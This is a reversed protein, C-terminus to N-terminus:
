GCRAGSQRSRLVGKLGGPPQGNGLCLALRELRAAGRFGVHGVCLDGWRARKGVWSSFCVNLSRCSETMFSELRSQGAGMGDICNEDPYQNSQAM